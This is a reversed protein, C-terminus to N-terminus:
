DELASHLEVLEYEGVAGAVDFALVDGIRKGMLSQSLPAKYNYRGEDISADWPGVFSMEFPEADAIRRFVARTGIGVHSTPVDNPDIVRAFELESNIQALRARLLDREELAFKYESNESLDGKEAALGIAKANEKMKVNVLDDIEKQKRTMGAQTVFLVDARAWPEVKEKAALTPFKDSLRRLMDERVSRGLADTRSLMNRLAAAMGADLLELCLEFREYRKASLVARARACMRKFAERGVKDSRRVDELTRLIRTLATVPTVDGISKEHTPGNWLWLLAEFCEVPSSMIRQVAPEFEPTSWGAGLLRNAATECSALPLLPLIEGLRETWDAGSADVICDCVVDALAESDVHALIEAASESYRGFFEAAEDAYEALGSLQGARRAVVWLVATRAPDTRPKRRARECFSDCCRRLVEQSPTESRAKCDRVFRELADLQAAPRRLHEFEKLFLEDTDVPRESFAITYPSRGELSLHPNRKLASRARTWWKSWDQPTILSPVLLNQLEDSDIRGGKNRCIDVVLQAPDKHLEAVLSSRDFFRMVDFECPGAPKFRDALHVAGLSSPGSPLTLSFEWNSTNVADVRAAEDADRAVLFDGARLALCVEMTRLARRVPRGGELGAESLLAELGEREGHARRYLEAVQGRVEGCDGIALLFPGAVTLADASPLRASLTEIAAWALSEARARDGQDCLDALVKKYECLRPVQIESSEMIRIWEEEVARTNGSGALKVLSEAQLM